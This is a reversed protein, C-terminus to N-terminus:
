GTERIAYESNDHPAPDKEKVEAMMQEHNSKPRGGRQGCTTHHWQPFISSNETVILWSFIGQFVGGHDPISGLGCLPCATLYM